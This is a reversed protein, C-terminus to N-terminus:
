AEIRAGYGEDSVAKVLAEAAASTQVTAHGSALDVQVDQTGPVAKLAQTVAAVCHGCSMGTIHLQVTNM